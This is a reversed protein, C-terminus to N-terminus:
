SCSLGSLYTKILKTLEKSGYKNILEAKLAKKITVSLVSNPASKKRGAGTRKGGHTYNKSKEKCTEM